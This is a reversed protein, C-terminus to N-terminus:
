AEDMKEAFGRSMRVFILLGIGVFFPILGISWMGNMEPDSVAYFGLSIGIGGFLAMLGLVLAGLRVWHVGARGVPGPPMSPQSGGVLLSEIQADNTDPPPLDQKMAAMREQHTIERLRLLKAERFHRGMTVAATIGVVLLAMALLEM